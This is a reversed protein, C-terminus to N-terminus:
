AGAVGKVLSLNSLLGDSAGPVADHLANSSSARHRGDLQAIAGGELGNGLSGAVTQLLRAHPQTNMVDRTALETRHTM